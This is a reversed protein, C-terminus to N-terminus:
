WLVMWILQGQNYAPSRPVGSPEDDWKAISLYYPSFLFVITSVVEQTIVSPHLSFSILDRSIKEKKKRRVDCAGGAGGRGLVSVLFFIEAWLSPRNFVTGAFRPTMGFILFSQSVMGLRTPSYTKVRPPNVEKYSLDVKAMTAMCQGLSCRPPSSSGENGCKRRRLSSTGARQTKDQEKKM